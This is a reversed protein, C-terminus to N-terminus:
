HVRIQRPIAASVDDHGSDRQLDAKITAGDNSNSASRSGALVSLFRERCTELAYRAGLDASAAEALATRLSGDAALRRIREWMASYDEKPVLFGTRGDQILETLGGTAFAVVPRGCAAAELPVRGFPEPWLTPLAVVTAERIAEFLKDRELFGRFRVQSELRAERVFAHMQQQLRPGRGLFHLKLRRDAQLYSVASRLFELQGKAENLSGIVLVISEPRAAVPAIIAEIATPEGVFNPTGVLRRDDGLLGAIQRHLFRSTVAIEDYSLLAARRASRTSELLRKQLDVRQRPADEAACARDCAGCDKGGVRMLQNARACFFRNDRVMAIRRVGNWTEPQKQTARFVSLISRTNNALVIRPRLKEVLLSLLQANLYYTEPLGDTLIGGAPAKGIAMRYAAMRTRSFGFRILVSLGQLAYFVVRPRVLRLLRDYRLKTVGPALWSGQRPLVIVHIDDHRYIRVARDNGTSKVVAGRGLKSSVSRLLEHLSIEAGGVTTPPYEDGVILWEVRGICEALIHVQKSLSLSV